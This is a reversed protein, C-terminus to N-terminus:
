SFLGRGRPSSVKIRRRTGRLARKWSFSNSRNEDGNQGRSPAMKPTFRSMKPDRQGFFHNEPPAQLCGFVIMIASRKGFGRPLSKPVFIPMSTSDAGFRNAARFCCSVGFHYIFHAAHGGCPGLIPGPQAQFDEQIRGLAEFFAVSFLVSSSALLFGLFSGVLALLTSGKQPSKM